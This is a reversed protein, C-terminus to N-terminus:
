HENKPLFFHHFNKEIHRLRTYFMCLLIISFTQSVLAYNGLVGQAIEMNECKREQAQFHSSHFVKNEHPEIKTTKKFDVPEHTQLNTSKTAQVFNQFNAKSRFQFSMECKIGWYGISSKNPGHLIAIIVHVM